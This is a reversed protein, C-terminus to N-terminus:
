EVKVEEALGLEQIGQRLHRLRRALYIRKGSVADGAPRHLTL